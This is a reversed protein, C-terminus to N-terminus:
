VSGLLLKSATFWSECSSMNGNSYKTSMINEGSYLVKHIL